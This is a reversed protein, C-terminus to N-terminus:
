RTELLCFSLIKKKKRRMFIECERIYSIFIFKNKYLNKIWYEFLQYIIIKEYKDFNVVNFGRKNIQSEDLIKQFKSTKLELFIRQIHKLWNDQIQNMNFIIKKSKKKEKTSISKEQKEVIIDIIGSISKNILKDISKDKVVLNLITNEEEISIDKDEKVKDEVKDELEDKVKDELEDGFVSEKIKDEFEYNSNLLPEKMDDDITITSCKREKSKSKSKNCHLLKSICHLFNYKTKHHIFIYETINTEDSISKVSDIDLETFESVDSYENVYIEKKITKTNKQNKSIRKITNKIFEM